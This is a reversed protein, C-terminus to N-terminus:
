KWYLTIFHLYVQWSVASLIGSTFGAISTSLIIGINAKTSTYTKGIISPKYTYFILFFIFSLFSQIIFGNSLQHLHELPIGFAPAVSLAFWMGVVKDFNIQATKFIFVICLLAALFLTNENLFLLLSIGSIFAFLTYFITNFPM